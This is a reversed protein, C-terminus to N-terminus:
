RKPFDLPVEFFVKNGIKIQPLGNGKRNLSRRSIGLMWAFRDVSVYRKSRITIEDIEDGAEPTDPAGSSALREGAQVPQSTSPSSAVIKRSGAAGPNQVDNDIDPSTM